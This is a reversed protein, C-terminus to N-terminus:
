HQFLGLVPRSAPEIGDPEAIVSVKYEVLNVVGHSDYAVRYHYPQFYFNFKQIYINGEINRYELLLQSGHILGVNKLGKFNGSASNDQVTKKIIHDFMVFQLPDAVFNVWRM